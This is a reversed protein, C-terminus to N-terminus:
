HAAARRRPRAIGYLESSSFVASGASGGTILVQSNSLLTASHGARATALRGGDRFTQQAPDYLELSDIVQNSSLTPNGGAVLITGDPLRTCTAETRLVGVIAGFSFTGSQPDYIEASNILTAGITGGM